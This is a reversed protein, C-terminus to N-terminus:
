TPRKAPNNLIYSGLLNRYLINKNTLYNLAFDIDEESFKEAKEKSWKALEFSISDRDAESLNSDAIINYVIALLELDKDTKVDNIFASTFDIYKSFAELKKEVSESILRTKALSFAQETNLKYYDQFEQIDKILNDISYPGFKPKRFKFYDEELFQNLFYASKQLRIKTFKTSTLKTKFLMLVLHATTLSKPETVSKPKYYHGTPEYIIVENKEAFPKMYDIIIPKIEAWHLGGNGCGLPPIAISYIEIENLLKILERLGTHIYEIKSKEKWKNKTPFNVIWKYNEKFFHISGIKLAGSKCAKVYDKNNEPFALKFQYAIGKGMYGECNVTNVLCDVDSNLIDGTVFKFM